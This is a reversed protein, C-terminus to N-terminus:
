VCVARSATFPLLGWSGSLCMCGFRLRMPVPIRRRATLLGVRMLMRGMGVVRRRM